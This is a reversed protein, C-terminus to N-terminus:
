VFLRFTGAAPLKWDHHTAVSSISVFEKCQKNDKETKEVQKLETTKTQLCKVQYKKIQKFTEWTM